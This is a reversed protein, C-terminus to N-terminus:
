QELEKIVEQLECIKECPVSQKYEVEGSDRDLYASSMCPYFFLPKIPNGSGPGMGCLPCNSSQNQETM